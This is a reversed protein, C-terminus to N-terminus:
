EGKSEDDFEDNFKKITKERDYESKVRKLFERNNYIWFGIRTIIIIVIVIFAYWMILNM